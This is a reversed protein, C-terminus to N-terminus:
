NASELATAGMASLACQIRTWVQFPRFCASFGCPLGSRSEVKRCERRPLTSCAPFNEVRTWILQKVVNGVNFVNPM